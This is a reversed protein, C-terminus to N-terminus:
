GESALIFLIYVYMIFYIVQDRLLISALRFRNLEKFSGWYTISKYIAAFLLVLEFILPMIRNM